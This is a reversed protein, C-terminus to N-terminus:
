KLTTAMLTAPSLRNDFSTIAMGLAYRHAPIFHRKRIVVANGVRRAGRLGPGTILASAPARSRHNVHALLIGLGVRGPQARPRALGLAQGTLRLPFVRRSRRRARAVTPAILNTNVAGVAIASATFPVIRLRRRHPTKRGVGKAQEVPM